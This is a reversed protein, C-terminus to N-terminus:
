KDEKMRWFDEGWNKYLKSTDVLPPDLPPDMNDHVLGMRHILEFINNEMFSIDASDAIHFIQDQNHEGIGVLLGGAYSHEAILCYGKLHDVNSQGYVFLEEPSRFHSFMLEDDDMTYTEKVKTSYCPYIFGQYDENPRKIKIFAFEPKFVSIFSRYIPPLKVGYTEEVFSVDLVKERFQLFRFLNKDISL